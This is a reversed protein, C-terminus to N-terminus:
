QRRTLQFAMSDKSYSPLDVVWFFPYLELFEEFAQREGMGAEAAQFGNWDDFILIAEDKILPEVFGLAESASTYLDCDIMIVGVPGIQARRPATLTDHFWGEILHVRDWNVNRSNLFKITTPLDCACMGKLFLGQKDPPLGQFSDFGFLRTTSPLVEHAISLTLGNFVGFEVYNGKPKYLRVVETLWNRYAEEPVLRLTMPDAKPTVASRVKYYVQRLPTRRLWQRATTM